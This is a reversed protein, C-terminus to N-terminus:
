KSAVYEYEEEPFLQLQGTRRSDATVKDVREIILPVYDANLEILTADRRLRQAVQGVTGSGAFCDLVRCPVPPEAPECHCIREWAVTRRQRMGALIRAKVASANQAGAKQYEKQAVGAYEGSADGGCARQHERDPEGVEEVREYPAGCARCCGKESTSAKLMVEVLAQPFVAVHGGQYSETNISWANRKNRGAPHFGLGGSQDQRPNSLPAQGSKTQGRGTIRARDQDASTSTHPERIATADYYYADSLTFQFVSETVRTTRDKVSESMGNPKVWINEQRIRWGDSRMAFAFLWPIGVLEKRRIGPLGSKAMTDGIVVWLIADKRLVLRVAAFCEVLHAVYQEPTPEHGLQGVWGDAWEQGGTGYDRLGWYPPSTIAAHFTETLQPLVVRLDGVCIRVM